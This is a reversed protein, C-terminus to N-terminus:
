FTMKLTTKRKYFLPYVQLEEAADAQFLASAKKNVLGPVFDGISAPVSVTGDGCGSM